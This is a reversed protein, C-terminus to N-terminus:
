VHHRSTQPPQGPEHRTTEITVPGLAQGGSAEAVRHCFEVWTAEQLVKGGGLTDYAFAVVGDRSRARSHIQFRLADPQDDLARTDFRIRGAEPHGELTLLEFSTPSVATVRVGGSWPGLIKVFFEDGVRLSGEQGQRPEFDALLAPSFRPLDAQILAMLATPTHRPRALDLFYRRELEPGAGQAAPQESESM